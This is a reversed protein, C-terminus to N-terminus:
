NKLRVAENEENKQWANFILFGLRSELRREIRMNITVGQVEKSKLSTRSYM